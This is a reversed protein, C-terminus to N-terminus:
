TGALRWALRPDLRTMLRRRFPLMARASALLHRGVLRLRRLTKDDFQHESYLSVTAASALERLENRDLGSSRAIRGAHEVLTDGRRPHIGCLDLTNATARWLALVEDNATRRAALHALVLPMSIMWALVLALTVLVWTVWAPPGGRTNGADDASGASPDAEDPVNLPVTTPGSANPNTSTTSTPPPEPAPPEAQAPPVGTYGEAGPAGRSPTPEFLVWGIGDFWVEPWAHANLSRVRYRGDGGREGQTFGVAVRSPLGLSRAFAAFTGAFQECYGSRRELFDKIASTSHGAPVELDYEFGRFYEQLALAQEYPTVAGAAVQQAVAALDPTFSEPLELYIEDPPAIATGALLIEASPQPLASVIEYSDGRELGDGTVVLTATDLVFYLDRSTRRLETPAYAVPALKGGLAEIEFRQLVAASFPPPTALLGAAEDLTSDPLGWRTGDFSPLGTVRWYAPQDTIVTFLVTTGQDTLRGRIDVLPSLVETRGGGSPDPDFWAEKGAGPVHPGVTAAVLGALAALTIGGASRRFWAAGARPGIWVASEAARVARLVAVVALAAVLWLVTSSVRNRDIGVASVAIFVVGSPVVAEVRGDARFALADSLVASTGLALGAIVGFGGLHPVPPIAEGLQRWADALETSALRWTDATPLIAWMTDRYQVSSVAAVVAALALPVALWAPVRWWRLLTPVGHGVAVVLTAAGFFAWGDFIRSFSVATALTLAALTLTAALRAARRGQLSRDDAVASM